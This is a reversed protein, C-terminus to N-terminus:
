ECEDYTVKIGVREIKGEIVVVYVASECCDLHFTTVDINGVVKQM